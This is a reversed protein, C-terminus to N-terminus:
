GVNGCGKVFTFSLTDPIIPLLQMMTRMYMHICIHMRVVAHPVSNIGNIVGVSAASHGGTFTPEHKVLYCCLFWRKLVCAAFMLWVHVSISVSIYTSACMFFCHFILDDLFILTELVATAASHHQQASFLVEDQRTLVCGPCVGFM